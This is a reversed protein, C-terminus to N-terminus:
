DKVVRQTLVHAAQKLIHIAMIIMAIVAVRQRVVQDATEIQAARHAKGDIRPQIPAIFLDRLPGGEHLFMERVTGNGLLLFWPLPQVLFYVRRQELVRLKLQQMLLKLGLDTQRLLHDLARYFVINRKLRHQHVTPIQGFVQHLGQGVTPLIPHAQEFLVALHLGMAEGQSISLTM